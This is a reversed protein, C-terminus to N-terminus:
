TVAWKVSVSETPSAAFSVDLSWQGVDPDSAQCVDALDDAACAVAGDPDKLTARFSAIGPAGLLGPAAFSVNLQSANPGVAIKMVGGPSRFSQSGNAPKFSANPPPETRNTTGNTTANGGTTTNTGGTGNTSTLNPGRASPDETSLCGALAPALALACALLRAITPTGPDM